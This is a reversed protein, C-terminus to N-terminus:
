SPNCENGNLQRLSKCGEAVETTYRQAIYIKSLRVCEGVSSPAVRPSYRGPLTVKRGTLWDTAVFVEGPKDYDEISCTVVFRRGFVTFEDFYPVEMLGPVNKFRLNNGNHAINITGIPLPQDNM